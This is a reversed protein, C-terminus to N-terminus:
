MRNARLELALNLWRGTLGKMATIGHEYRDVRASARLRVRPGDVESQEVLVDVPCGRGRVTLTGQLLWRGERQVLRTSTFTIHPHHEADLYQKSRVTSDRNSVGTHFSAASITAHATSETVDEAVRIHGERLRFSGSVPAIGFVHRTRFTVTSDEADIRYEGAAPIQVQATQAATTM